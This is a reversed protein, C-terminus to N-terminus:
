EKEETPPYAAVLQCYRRNAEELFNNALLYESRRRCIDMAVRTDSTEAIIEGHLSLEYVGREEKWHSIVNSM